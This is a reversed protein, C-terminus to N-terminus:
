AAVATEVALVPVEVVVPRGLRYGHRVYQEAHIACSDQPYRRGATVEVVSVISPLPPMATGSCDQECAECPDLERYPVALVPAGVDGLDAEVDRLQALVATDPTAVSTLCTPAIPPSYAKQM